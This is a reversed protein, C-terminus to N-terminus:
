KKSLREFMVVGKNVGRRETSAARDVKGQSFLAQACPVIGWSMPVM